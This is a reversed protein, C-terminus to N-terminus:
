TCWVRYRLSALFCFFVGVVLVIKQGRTEECVKSHKTVVFFNAHLRHCTFFQGLLPAHALYFEGALLEEAWGFSAAIGNVHIWCMRQACCRLLMDVERLFHGCRTFCNLTVLVICYGLGISCRSIMEECM